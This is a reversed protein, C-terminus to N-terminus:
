LNRLFQQGPRGDKKNLEEEKDVRVILFGTYKLGTRLALDEASYRSLYQVNCPKLGTVGVGDGIITEDPFQSYSEAVYAFFRKKEAASPHLNNTFVKSFSDMVIEDSRPLFDLSVNVPLPVIAIYYCSIPGNIDDPRESFTLSFTSQNNSLDTKPSEVIDPQAYNTVCNKKFVAPQSRGASNEAWVTVSYNRNPKLPGFKCSYFDNSFDIPNIGAQGVSSEDEDWNACRKDVEEAIPFDDPTLSGDPRSTRMGGRVSVFYKIIRGNPEAPSKWEVECSLSSGSNLVRM